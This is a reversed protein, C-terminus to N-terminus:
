AIMKAEGLRCPDFPMTAEDAASPMRSCSPEAVRGPNRQRGFGATIACQFNLDRLFAASWPKRLRRAAPRLM